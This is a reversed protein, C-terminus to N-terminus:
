KLVAAYPLGEESMKTMIYNTTGNIIGIIQSINNAQMGEKLVRIIPIGGACSAEYYLQAGTSSAADQLEAFHKALLEKNATVVSKGAKLSRLIFDKAPNIGGMTEVVISITDDALIEDLSAAACQADVGRAVVIDKSKDLVKAVFIDVGQTKLIMARNKTLIDYTGGGVTGIGLIAINITKM